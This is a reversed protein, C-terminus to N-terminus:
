EGEGEAFEESFGDIGYVKAEMKAWRLARDYDPLAVVLQKGRFTVVVDCERVGNYRRIRVESSHELRGM